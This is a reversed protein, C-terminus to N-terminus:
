IMIDYTDKPTDLINQSYQMYTTCILLIRLKRSM